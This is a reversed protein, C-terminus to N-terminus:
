FSAGINLYWRDRDDGGFAYGFYVPGIFTDAGIYVSSSWLLEDLDADETDLWVNGTEYTLGAYVRTQLGALDLAFLEQYGFIRALAVKQGFLEDTGYASLRGFGGLTRASFLGANDGWSRYLELGPAVTFRGFTVAGDIAVTASTFDVDAGLTSMSEEVDVDLSWGSTPFIPADITRVSFRGMVGADTGEFEFLGPFGVRDKLARDFWYGGVRIEGWNGLARGVDVRGGVSELWLESIVEGDVWVPFNRRDFGVSPSVFWALRDDLPQYFETILAQRDGIQAQTLWEGGRGNAPLMRHRGVVNYGTEGEFDDVLGLGFRLSHRGYEPPDVDIVLVVEGDRDELDYEIQGFLELGHLAMVDASLRGTDLAVGVHSELRARIIDDLIDSRNHIELRDVRLDRSRLRRHTREWAAWTADDVAFKRLEDAHAMASEYGIEIVKEMEQFNAFSFDGLDPILLVDGARIAARDREVNASTLFATMRRFVSFFSKSRYNPDLPSSIDVALIPADSQELAVHVPLNSSVGGDVLFRGDIEVPAFVGPISMSARIAKALSGDGLVVVESTALDAAVARFPVPLDDFDRAAGLQVQAAKLILEIRRGQFLGLPLYPGDEGFRISGRVLYDADDQKRRFSKDRYPITDSFVGAWDISQIVGEIQIPSYGASYLGGVVSGMSAGVILDVPVQLEELARLVGVHAAGRAGGGSLVLTLPARDPRTEPRDPVTQGAVPISWALLVCLVPCVLRLRM